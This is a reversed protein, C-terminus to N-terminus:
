VGGHAEMSVRAATLITSIISKDNSNAKMYKSIKASDTMSSYGPITPISICGDINPESAIILNGPTVKLSPRVASFGGASNVVFIKTVNNGKVIDLQQGLRDYVIVVNFQPNISTLVDEIFMQNPEAIVYKTTDKLIKQKSALYDNANLISVGKYLGPIGVRSDYILLKINLHYVKKLIHIINSVLSNTYRAYSIEKFYIISQAKCRILSTNVEKYSTIVPTNAAADLQGQLELVKKNASAVDKRLTTVSNTLKDNEGKYHKLEQRISENEGESASLKSKLSDILANVEGSNTADAIRRLYEVLETSSQISDLHQELFATLGTMDGANILENIGFLITNLESYASIDGGAYQQVELLTPERQEVVGIYDSTILSLSDVRYVNYNRYSVMLMMITKRIKSEKGVCITILRTGSLLMDVVKNYYKYLSASTSEDLVLIVTSNPDCIREDDINVSEYGHVSHNIMYKGM